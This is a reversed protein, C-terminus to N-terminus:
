DKMSIEIHAPSLSLGSNTTESFIDRSAVEFASILMVLAAYHHDDNLLNKARQLNKSYANQEITDEVYDNVKDTAYSEIISHGMGLLDELMFRAVFFSFVGKEGGTSSHVETRSNGEDTLTLHLKEHRTNIYVTPSAHFTYLKRKVLEASVAETLEEVLLKEESSLTM